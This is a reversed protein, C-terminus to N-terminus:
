ELARSMRLLAPLLVLDAGLAVVCSLATFLGFRATPLFRSFWLCFLGAVLVSTSLVLARGVFRQTRLLARPASRGARRELVARFSVHLTDDIALGIAVAGVAVASVDLPVQLAAAVGFVVLPPLVNPLLAALGLRISRLGIALAAVVVLTMLLSGEILDRVLGRTTGVARVFLGTLEAQGTAFGDAAGRLADLAEPGSGERLRVKIRYRRGKRDEFRKLVDHMTARLFALSKAEDLPTISMGYDVFDELGWASQVGPIAEAATSFTRLDSLIEADTAEPTAHLIVDAPITATLREELFGYARAISSDKQFAQLVQVQMRSYPIALLCLVGVVLGALAITRAHRGVCLGLAILGRHLRRGPRQARPRALGLAAPIGVLVVPIAALLGLAVVNGAAHFAPVGTLHLSWFAAATTLLSLLIPPTLLRAARRAARGADADRAHEEHFVHLLHISSTIGVVAMVPFLAAGLATLPIELAAAAGLAILPPLGTALVAILTERVSRCLVFLVVLASGLALAGIRRLDEIAYRSAEVAFPTVGTVHMDGERAAITRVEELAAEREARTGPRISSAVAVVDLDRNYVTGLYIPAALLAQRVRRRGAETELDSRRLPRPLPGIPLLAQPSALGYTEELGAVQDLAKTVRAIRDFEEPALLDPTAWAVLLIDEAGFVSGLEDESRDADADARLLSRTTHDFHLGPLAWASAAAAILLLLLILRGLADGPRM